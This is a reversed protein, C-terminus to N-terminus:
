AALGSQREFRLKLGLASTVKILTDLTPNGEEGLAAYLAQRNVGSRHALKTMGEARAAVGLARAIYGSHGSEIADNLLDLIDEADTLYKAADFARTKM